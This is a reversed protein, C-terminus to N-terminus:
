RKERKFLKTWRQVAPFIFSRSNNVRKHCVSVVRKDHLVDYGNTEYLQRAMDKGIEREAIGRSESLGFARNWCDHADSAIFHVMGHRLFTLAAQKAARGYLGTLSGANVQALAGREIFEHLRNPQVALEENREPHAIIPTYGKLKLEFITDKAYEIQGTIPLELLVYSSHNLTCVVGDEIWQPIAYSIFVESGPYICIDIGAEAASEVLTRYRSQVLSSDNDFSGRIYHPTAIMHAVGDAAAARLMNLATKMNQAGDDIGPIVHCHIDIMM